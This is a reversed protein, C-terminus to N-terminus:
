KMNYIKENIDGKITEVARLEEIIESNLISSQQMQEENIKKYPQRFIFVLVISILTM